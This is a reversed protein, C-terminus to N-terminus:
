PATLPSRTTQPHLTQKPFAPDHRTSGKQSVIYVASRAGKPKTSVLLHRCHRYCHAPAVEPCGSPHDASPFVTNATSSSAKSISRFPLNPPKLLLALGPTM